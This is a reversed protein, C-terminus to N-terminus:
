RYYGSRGYLGSRIHANYSIGLFNRQQRHVGFPVVYARGTGLDRGYFVGPGHPYRYGHGYRPYNSYGYGGGYGYGHTSYYPQRTYGGYGRPYQARGYGYQVQEAVAPIVPVPGYEGSFQRALTEARSRALDNAGGPWDEVPTRRSPEGAVASPSEARHYPGWSDVKKTFVPPPPGALVVTLVSVSLFIGLFMKM